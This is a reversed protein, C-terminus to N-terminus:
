ITKNMESKEFDDDLDIYADFTEYIKQGSWRLIKFGTLLEVVMALDM